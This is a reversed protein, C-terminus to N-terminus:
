AVKKTLYYHLCRALTSGRDPQTESYSGHVPCFGPSLIKKKWSWCLAQCVTLIRSIHM